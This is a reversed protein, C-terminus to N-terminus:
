NQASSAWLSAVASVIRACAVSLAGPKVVAAFLMEARGVVVFATAHAGFGQITTSSRPGNCRVGSREASTLSIVARGPHALPLAITTTTLPVPWRVAFEASRM